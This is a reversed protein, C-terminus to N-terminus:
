VNRRKEDVDFVALELAISDKNDLEQLIDIGLVM